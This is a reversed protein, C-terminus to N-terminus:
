KQSRKQYLTQPDQFITLVSIIFAYEYTRLPQKM